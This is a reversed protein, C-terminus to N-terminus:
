PAFPDARRPRKVPHGAGPVMQFRPDFDVQLSVLTTIVSADGEAQAKGAEILDALKTQGLFIADLDTRDITLTLEAQKAQYGAVNTLTGNSLELVFREDRDPTILNIRFETGDARVSDLRIGMFDLLMPTTMASVFDPGATAAAQGEPVGNRLEYAAALFSNRVSPSEKQYGIQEWIDALLDKAAQNDPQAYALKTVIEQAHRYRGEAFLQEGRAMIKAAGGMMEVYLPASDAPDLPILTTPNADWYGLYRNV